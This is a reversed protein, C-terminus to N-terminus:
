SFTENRSFWFVSPSLISLQLGYTKAIWYMTQSHYFAIHSKERIYRWHKFASETSYQDSPQTMIVLNGQPKLLSLLLKWSTKPTHFHEVVETCSILDYREKLAQEDPTFFPDYNTVTWGQEGLVVEITPGPGSGFDLINIKKDSQNPAM